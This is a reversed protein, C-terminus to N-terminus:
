AAGKGRPALAGDVPVRIFFCTGVGPTTEFDLTGHHRDVIISRAMALGQGTGRGVDKTTFFADFVHDQVEPPIGCGNDRITILVTDGELRTAVHIVGKSGGTRPADEIAHAANVVLNLFVQNMHGVHCFVPPLRGLDTELAAVYKYENRAITLTSSLAANLDVAAKEKQDPYSFEKIARAIEAVRRVGEQTRDLSTPIESRLLALDAFNEADEIAATLKPEFAQEVARARLAELTELLGNLDEFAERLFNVSDGIFQVPTNIEHAIGAAIRGVSELQQARGLEFELQRIERRDQLALLAGALRGGAAYHGRAHVDVPVGPEGALKMGRLVVLEGLTLAGFGLPTDAAFLSDIPEGRLADAARGVLEAAHRSIREICGNADVEILGCPVVDAVRDFGPEM